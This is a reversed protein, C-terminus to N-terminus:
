RFRSPFAHQQCTPLFPFFFLKPIQNNMFGAVTINPSFFAYGYVCSKWNFLMWNSTEGTRSVILHCTLLKCLINVINLLKKYQHLNGTKRACGHWHAEGVLATTAREKKEKVEMSNTFPCSSARTLIM